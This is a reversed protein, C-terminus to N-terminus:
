LVLCVDVLALDLRQARHIEASLMALASAAASVIWAAPFSQGLVHVPGSGLVRGPISQENQGFPITALAEIVPSLGFFLIISLMEPDKARLLRPM